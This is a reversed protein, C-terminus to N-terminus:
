KKDKSKIVHVVAVWDMDNQEYWQVAKVIANGGQIVIFDDERPVAPMITKKYPDVVGDPDWENFWVEVGHEPIM